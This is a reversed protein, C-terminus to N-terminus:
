GLVIMVHESQVVKFGWALHLEWTRQGYQAIDLMLYTMGKDDSINIMQQTPNAPMLPPRMVGVVASREFALNATYAAGITMANSTAITVRAGPRGLSITGPAAVGTGIVYKNNADAAFTVVDGALVTGSGTILAIDTVGAATSGSTVYSTGTGATHSGIGASETISFGFQKLLRGTRREEESGAQYAQQIIGLNRLKLGAATDVCLQLDSMPAGNDKLMKYVNTMATLDTAFPTTAATGYARSAGQKIATAADVEALNRLTRMGQAVLQRVWESSMAGNDLSRIQEGTLHWSVKKSATITVAIDAATANDGATSIAAPTFDSAARIPAVPVLVNDGKAVGKDDFNNNIGSIVGFPESSVVQAASFLTPALATLTNAM